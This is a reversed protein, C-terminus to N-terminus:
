SNECCSEEELTKTWTAILGSLSKPPAPLLEAVFTRILAQQPKGLYEVPSKGDVRALMLLPLLGTLRHEFDADVVPGAARQYCAWVASALALIALADEPKRLAKLFFHNLLFALDFVPDGFCAVECDLVVFRSDSVLLNKPSFDGHILCCRSAAIREVAVEFYKQLSPHRKGTTILYPELRLAHFNAHNAFQGALSADKFSRAHITGLIRGAQQAVGMQYHGALLAQKWNQLGGEVMEMCFFGNADDSHLVRPVADPLFDAVYRLYQQETRNRGVDAYWDDKVNLKELARKLVLRHEGDDLLFIECSVGGTLPTADVPGANLMGPKDRQIIKILAHIDM